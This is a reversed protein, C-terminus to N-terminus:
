ALPESGTRAAAGADNGLRGALRDVLQAVAEAQRQARSGAFGAQVAALPSIFRATLILADVGLGADLTAAKEALLRLM